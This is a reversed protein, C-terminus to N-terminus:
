FIQGTLTLIAIVALWVILTRKILSITQQIAELCDNEEEDDVPENQMAGMASDTLLTENKDKWFDSLSTWRSVTDTFSGALAFSIVALRVPLWNLIELLDEVSKIFGDGMSARYKDLESAMRLLAAGIPGLLLFWLIVAFVRTISETLISHQVMRGIETFSLTSLDSAECGIIQQAAIRIAEENKNNVADHFDDAQQALDTPGMTYILVATAFLFSLSGAVSALMASILWIAFLIITIILVVGLPGNRWDQGELKAYLASAYSHFWDYRRMSQVASYYHEIALTVLISILNM